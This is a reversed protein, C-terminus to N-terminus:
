KTARDVIDLITRLTTKRVTVPKDRDKKVSERIANILKAEDESLVFSPRGPTTSVNRRGQEAVPRGNANEPLVYVSANARKENALRTVYGAKHLKSLASTASGQQLNLKSSIDIWTVGHAGSEGVLELAPTQNKGLNM